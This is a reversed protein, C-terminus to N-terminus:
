KIWLCFWPLFFSLLPIAKRRGVSSYLLIENSDFWAGHIIVQGFWTRFRIGNSWSFWDAFLEPSKVTVNTIVSAIRSAFKGIVHIRVCTRFRKFAFETWHGEWSWIIEIAVEFILMQWGLKFAIETWFLEFKFINSVLVQVGVGSCRGVRAFMTVGFKGKGIGEIMVPLFKM